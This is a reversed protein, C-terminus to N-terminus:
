NMERSALKSAVMSLLMAIWAVMHGVSMWPNSAWETLALSATIVFSSLILILAAFELFASKM